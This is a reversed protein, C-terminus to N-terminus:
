ESAEAETASLEELQEDSVDRAQAVEEQFDGLKEVAEVDIAVPCAWELPAASVSVRRKGDGVSISADAGGLAQMMGLTRALWEKNWWNKTVAKRKRGIEKLELPVGAVDTVRVYVRLLVSWAGTEDQGARFIPALQYRFRTAREGWGYQKEGTMAVRTHRGDVHTFPVNRNPNGNDLHEFYFVNRHNCWALGARVCAVDLTRGILEKVADISKKGERMPFADWAYEPFGSGTCRVSAPPADFALLKGPSVKVFAWERRLKETAEAGLEKELTCVLLSAPVITPFVNAFVREPVGKTLPEPMYARLAIARSQDSDLPPAIGRSELSRQVDRIGQSWGEDFRAMDIRQLPSSLASRNVRAALCPLLLGDRSAAAGCRAMLNVDTVAAPSLIPLYQQARQEILIRVSEDANEGAMPAIGYCWTRYGALSLKRSIWSALAHDAPMHDIVLTDASHAISLGGRVPFWPPCFIAPHQAVLHRLEGALNVRIRELDYIELSWGYQEAIARKAQDKQTASLTSTCVSVVHHPNHKESQIRKCDDHLKRLWDARVTYAFITLGTSDDRKHLADRGLDGSGGLPEIAPYGSGAMIDSCLREFQRYDTLRELCYVIPDASM